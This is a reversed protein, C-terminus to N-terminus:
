SGTRTIDTKVEFNGALITFIYPTLDKIQIDYYYSGRLVKTEAATLIFSTIGNTPYSHTTITKAIVASADTDEQLRKVTFYVTYGTIDIAVGADTTFTLTIPFTDGRFITIDQVRDLNVDVM